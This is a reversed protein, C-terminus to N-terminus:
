LGYYIDKGARLADADTEQALAAQLYPIQTTDRSQQLQSYAALRKQPSASFLNLLPLIPLLQLRDARDISVEKLASPDPNGPLPKSVPYLSYLKVAGTDGAPEMTVAQGNLLYLKKDNIARLVPFAPAARLAVLRAIAQSRDASSAPQLLQQVYLSTSDTQAHLRAGTCLLLTFFLLRTMRM